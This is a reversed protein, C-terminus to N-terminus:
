RQFHWSFPLQYPECCAEQGSSDYVLVDGRRNADINVHMTTASTIVQQPAAWAAGPSVPRSTVAFGTSSGGVVTTWGVTAIGQDDIVANHVGSSRIWTDPAALKDTTEWGGGARRVSASPWTSVAVGPGSAPASGTWAVVADGRTNTTISPVPGAGGATDLLHPTSWAGGPPRYTVEVRTPNPMTGVQWVVYVTGGGSVAMHLGTVEAGPVPAGSATWVKQGKKLQM